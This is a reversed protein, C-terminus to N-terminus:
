SLLWKGKYVEQVPGELFVGTDRDWHIRLIGGPVKIIGEPNSQGRLSAAVGVACAGSGCSWTEGAGREWSRMVITGDDAVNAIHFNIREPFKTHNEV